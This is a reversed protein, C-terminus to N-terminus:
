WTGWVFCNPKFCGLGLFNVMYPILSYLIDYLFLQLNKLYQSKQLAVHM